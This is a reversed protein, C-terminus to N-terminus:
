VKQAILYMIASVVGLILELCEFALCFVNFFFELRLVYTQFFAFYISAVLAFLTSASFLFLAIPDFRKLGRNGVKPRVLSMFGWCLYLIIDMPLYPGAYPLQIGKYIFILINIFFIAGFWNGSVFLILGLLLGPFNPKTERM